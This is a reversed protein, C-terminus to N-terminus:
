SPDISHLYIRSRIRTLLIHLLESEKKDKDRFTNLKPSLYTQNNQSLNVWHVNGVLEAPFEQHVWYM